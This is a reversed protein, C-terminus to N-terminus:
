QVKGLSLVGKTLSSLLLFFHRLEDNFSIDGTCAIQGFGIDLFDGGFGIRDYIAETFWVSSDCAIDSTVLKIADMLRFAGVGNITV